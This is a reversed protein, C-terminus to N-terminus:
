ARNFKCDFVLIIFVVDSMCNAEWKSKRLFNSSDTNVLLLMYAFYSVSTPDM